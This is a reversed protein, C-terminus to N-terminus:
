CDAGNGLGAKMLCALCAPMLNVKPVLLPSQLRPRSSYPRFIILSHPRVGCSKQIGLGSPWFGTCTRFYSVASPYSASKCLGYAFQGCIYCPYARIGRDAGSPCIFIAWRNIAPDSHDM